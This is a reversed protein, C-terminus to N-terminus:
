RVAVINVISNANAAAFAESIQWTGGDVTGAESAVLVCAPHTQGMLSQFKNFPALHLRNKFLVTHVLRQLFDRLYYVM